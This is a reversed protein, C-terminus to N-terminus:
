SETNISSRLIFKETKKIYENLALGLMTLMKPDKVLIFPDQAWMRKGSLYLRSTPSVRFEDDPYKDLWELVNQRRDLPLHKLIIKHTYIGHPYNDVIVLKSNSMLTQMELDNVPEWQETIFEKLSDIALEFTEKDKLFINVHNNEYRVRVTKELIPKLKTAFQKLNEVDTNSFKYHSNYKGTGWNIVYNVGWTRIQSGGKITTAIKYPWAGYFLKKTTLKRIQLKM